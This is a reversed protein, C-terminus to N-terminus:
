IARPADLAGLGDLPDDEAEHAPLVTALLGGRVGVEVTVVIRQGPILRRLGLYEPLDTRNHRQFGSVQVRINTDLTILAMLCPQRKAWVLADLCGTFQGKGLARLSDSRYTVPEIGADLADAYSMENM